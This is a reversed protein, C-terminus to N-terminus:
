KIIDNTNYSIKHCLNNTEINHIRSLDIQNLGFSQYHNHKLDDPLSSYRILREQNAQIYEQQFWNHKKDINISPLNYEKPKLFRPWSGGWYGESAKHSDYSNNWELNVLIPQEQNAFEKWERTPINYFLFRKILDVDENGWGFYSNDYGNINLLDSTLCNLGGASTFWCICYNRYLYNVNSVPVIDVDHIIIHQSDLVEHSYKIAVNLSLSRNFISDDLQESVVINYDLEPNHQSLYQPLYKLLTKLYESRNKYPIIIATKM